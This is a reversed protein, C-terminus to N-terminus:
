TITEKNEYKSDPSLEDYSDSNIEGAVREALSHALLGQIRISKKGREITLLGRLRVKFLRTLTKIRSRRLATYHSAKATRALKLNIARNAKSAEKSVDESM